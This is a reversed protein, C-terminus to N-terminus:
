FTVQDAMERELHPPISRSVIFWGGVLARTRRM